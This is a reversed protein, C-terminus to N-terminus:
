FGTWAEKGSGNRPKLCEFFGFFGTRETHFENYRHNIIAVIRGVPV